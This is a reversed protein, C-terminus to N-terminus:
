EVIEDKEHVQNSWAILKFDPQYLKVDTGSNQVHHQLYNEVDPTFRKQGLSQSNCVIQCSFSLLLHEEM